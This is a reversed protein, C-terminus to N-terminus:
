EQTRSHPEGVALWLAYAAAAHDDDAREAREEIGRAGM